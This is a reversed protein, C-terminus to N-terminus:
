GTERERRKMSQEARTPYQNKESKKQNVERGKTHLLLPHHHFLSGIGQMAIGDRCQPSAIDRDV